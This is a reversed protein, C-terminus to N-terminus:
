PQPPPGLRLERFASRNRRVYALRLEDAWWDVADLEDDLKALESKRFQAFLKGIDRAVFKGGRAEGQVVLEHARAILDGAAPLGLKRYATEALHFWDPINFAAQPFGGNGVEWELWRSALYVWVPEPLVKAEAPTGIHETLLLWLQDDFESDTLSGAEDRDMLESLSGARDKVGM